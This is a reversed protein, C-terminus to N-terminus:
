ISKAKKFAKGSVFASKNFKSINTSNFSAEELSELFDRNLHCNSAMRKWVPTVANFLGALPEHDPLVHEIFILQGNDKLVRRLESLGKEVNKVSCFVLTVVITDFCKDEFSMEEVDMKQVDYNFAVHNLKDMLVSNVTEDTLVIHDIKNADYYALNVGTGSGIELVNGYASTILERRKLGLTGKEFFNMFSDYTSKM